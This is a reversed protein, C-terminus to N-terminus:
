LPVTVPKVDVMNFKALLSDIHSSQCLCTTGKGCDHLVEIGLILNVPGLDKIKFKKALSVKIENVHLHRGIILCNDVYISVVSINGGQKRVYVCPDAELPQFQLAHLHKDLMYNWMLLAQKLRYLSKNLRCVYDPHTQSVFGEPQKVFVTESLDVQLFTSDIDM